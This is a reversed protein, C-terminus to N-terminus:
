GKFIELDIEKIYRNARTKEVDVGYDNRMYKVYTERSGIPIAGYNKPNVISARGALKKDELYNAYEVMNNFKYGEIEYM